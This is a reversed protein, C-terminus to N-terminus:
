AQIGRPLQGTLVLRRHEEEIASIVTRIDYALRNQVYKRKVTAPVLERGGYFENVEHYDFGENSNYCIIKFPFRPDRYIGVQFSPLTIKVQRAIREDGPVEFTETYEGDKHTVSKSGSDFYQIVRRGRPKPYAPKRVEEQLWQRGAEDVRLVEEDDAELAKLGASGKLAEPADHRRAPLTEKEEPEPVLDEGSSYDLFLERLEDTSYERFHKEFEVGADKLARYYDSRTPTAM